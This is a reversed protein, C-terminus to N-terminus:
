TCQFRNGDTSQSNGIGTRRPLSQKNNRKTYKAIVNGNRNVTIQLSLALENCKQVEKGRSPHKTRKLGLRKWKPVAEPDTIVTPTHIVM